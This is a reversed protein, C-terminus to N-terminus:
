KIHCVKPVKYCLGVCELNRESSSWIENFQDVLQSNESMRKQLAYELHHIISTTRYLTFFSNYSCRTDSKGYKFQWAFIDEKMPIFPHDSFFSGDLGLSFFHASTAELLKLCESISIVDTVIYDDTTIFYHTRSAMSFFQNLENILDSSEKLSKKQIEIRKCKDIMQDYRKEEELDKAKYFVVMDELKDIKNEVSELFVGFKKDGSSIVIM